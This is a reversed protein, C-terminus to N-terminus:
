AENELCRAASWDDLEDEDHEKKMQEWCDKMSTGTYFTTLGDQFQAKFTVLTM